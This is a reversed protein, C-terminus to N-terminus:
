TRSTRHYVTFLRSRSRRTMAAVGGPDLGVVVEDGGVKVGGAGLGRGAVGAAPGDFDTEAVDFLQQGGDAEGLRATLVGTRHHRDDLLLDASM